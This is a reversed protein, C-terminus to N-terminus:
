SGSRSEKTAECFITFDKDSVKWESNSWCSANVPEVSVKGNGAFMVVRDYIRYAVQFNGRSCAAKGVRQYLVYQEMSALGKVDYEPEKEEDCGCLDFKNTCFPSESM